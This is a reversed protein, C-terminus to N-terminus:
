KSTHTKNQLMLSVCINKRIQYALCIILKPILHANFKSMLSLGLFPNTDNQYWTVQSYWLKAAPKAIELTCIDEVENGADEESSILM